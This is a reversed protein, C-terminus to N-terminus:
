PMKRSAHNDVSVLQVPKGLLGGRENVIDKALEIGRETSASYSMGKGSLASQNRHSGRHVPPFFYMGWAFLCVFICVPCPVSCKEEHFDEKRIQFRRGSDKHNLYFCYPIPRRAMSGFRMTSMLDRAADPAAPWPFSLAPRSKRDSRLWFCRIIGTALSLVTAMISKLSTATVMSWGAMTVKGAATARVPVGYDVGIDIGEHFGSGGGIPNGRYGFESTITGTVPWISPVTSASNPSGSSGGVQYMRSNQQMQLVQQGATDSLVTKLTIFSIIRANSRTELRSTALLLDNYSANSLDPSKKQGGAVGGDGKPSDGAGSGKVM